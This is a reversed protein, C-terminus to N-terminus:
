GQGASSGPALGQMITRNIDILPEFEAGSQMVERSYKRVFMSLSIIGARLDKPLGNGEQACDTALASWVSRNWALAAARKQMEERPAQSAEILSRTVQGFLRYETDRPNESRTTSSQYAKQYAQLTM